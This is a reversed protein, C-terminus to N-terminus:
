HSVGVLVYVYRGIAYRGIRHQAYTKRTSLSQFHALTRYGRYLARIVAEYM